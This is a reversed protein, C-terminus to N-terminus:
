IEPSARPSRHPSSAPQPCVVLTRLEAARQYAPGYLRPWPHGRYIPWIYIYQLDFRKSISANGRPRNIKLRFREELHSHNPGPDNPATGSGRQLDNPDPDNPATCSGRLLHNPDPDNPAIGSGRLLHNQDPDNPAIGPGRQLHNPDPGNLAVDSGWIPFLKSGSWKTRYWIRLNPIIRIRIM